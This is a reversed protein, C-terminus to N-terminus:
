NRKQLNKLNLILLAILCFYSKVNKSQWAVKENKVQSNEEQTKLSYSSQIRKRGVCVSEKTM